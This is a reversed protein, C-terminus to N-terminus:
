RGYKELQKIFGDNPDIEKSKDLIDLAEDSNMDFMRMLVMAYMTVSRSLGMRCNILITKRNKIATQVLAYVYDFYKWIPFKDDDLMPINFYLVKGSEDFLFSESFNLVIDTKSKEADNFDGIYIGKIPDIM